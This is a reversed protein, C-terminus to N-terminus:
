AAKTIRYLGNANADVTFPNSFSQVNGSSGENLDMYGLLLDGAVLSAGARRVLYFYRAAIDVVAGYDVQAMDVMVIGPSPESITITAVVPSYDADTCEDASIDAYTSESAIVPAGHSDDVLVGVMTDTDPDIAGNQAALLGANLLEFAGVTM